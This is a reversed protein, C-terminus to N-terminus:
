GSRSEVGEKESGKVPKHLSEERGLRRLHLGIATLCASWTLGFALPALELKLPMLVALAFFALGFAYCRGWYSSGM